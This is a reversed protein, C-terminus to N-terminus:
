TGYALEEFEERAAVAQESLVAVVVARRPSHRLPHDKGALMSPSGVDEM